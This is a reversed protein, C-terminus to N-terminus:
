TEVRSAPNFAYRTESIVKGVDTASIGLIALQRAGITGRLVMNEIANSVSDFSRATARAHVDLAVGNRHSVAELM